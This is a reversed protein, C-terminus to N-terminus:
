ALSAQLTLGITNSQEDYAMALIRMEGRWGHVGNPLRVNAAHILVTNGPRMHLFADGKDAVSVRLNLYPQKSSSLAVQTKLELTSQEFVDQFQVVTNRLRYATISDEDEILDTELRSEETSQDGIGKMRNYIVGDVSAELVSMNGGEGDKLLFGTDKGIQSAIDVYLLMQNDESKEPRLLMESGSRELLPSLQDWLTRQDLTEERPTTDAGGMDGARLYMEEAANAQNIIESVIDAVSGTIFLGDNPTRLSFLYEANYLTITVPSICTWPTDIIGAWTPLSEDSITVLRGLQLWKEAAVDDPIIVTAMGGGSVAPNGTLAWGRNCIANFEGVSRHDAGYVVVRSM